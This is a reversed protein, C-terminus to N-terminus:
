WEIPRADYAFFGGTDSARLGDVTTLIMSAAEHPETSKHNLAFPRSLTTNVTGPHIAVVVAEPRKRAIEIAATRIIQNLAAKSSRYSMWGGLRNDGISGVRASLLAFDSRKSASLLPTFHKLILAPGIANIAFQAAMADITVQKISKEPGVGNITLAGTACVILNFQQDALKAAHAAISDEDLLDLGDTSRSLGIVSRCADHRQLTAALAQGIGGSAGIVLARFNKGFSEM